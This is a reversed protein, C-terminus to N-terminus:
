DGTYSVLQLNKRFILELYARQDKIKLCYFYYSVGIDVYRLLSCYKIITIHIVDTERANSSVEKFYFSLIKVTAFLLINRLKNFFTLFFFFFIKFTSKISLLSRAYISRSQSWTRYKEKPRTVPARLYVRSIVLIVRLNFWKGAVGCLHRFTDGALQGKIM